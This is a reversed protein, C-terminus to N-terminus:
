LKLLRRVLAPVERRSAQHDCGAKLLLEQYEPLSSSAIMPGKFTKRIKRVLPESDILSDDVCADMVVLAVDPNARFLQGGKKLSDAELLIVRNKLSRRLKVRNYEDDEVVLVKPLTSM